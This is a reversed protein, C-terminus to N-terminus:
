RCRESGRADSIAGVDNKPPDPLLHRVSDGYFARSAAPRQQERVVVSTQSVAEAGAKRSGRAERDNQRFATTATVRRQPKAPLVRKKPAINTRSLLWRALQHRDLWFEGGFSASHRGILCRERQDLVYGDM